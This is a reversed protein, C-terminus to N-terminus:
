LEGFLQMPELEAALSMLEIKMSALDSDSLREQGSLSKLDVRSSPEHIIVSNSIQSVNEARIRISSLEITQIANTKPNIYTYIPFLVLPFPSPKIYVRYNTGYPPLTAITVGDYQKFEVPYQSENTALFCFEKSVDILSPIVTKNKEKSDLDYVVLKTYVVDGSNLGREKTRYTEHPVARMIFAGQDPMGSIKSLDFLRTEGSKIGGLIFNREVRGAFLVLDSDSFNSCEFNGMTETKFDIKAQQKPSSACGALLALAVSLAILVLANREM